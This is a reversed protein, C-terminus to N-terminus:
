EKSLIDMYQKAIVNDPDIALVEELKEIALANKSSKGYELAEQLLQSIEHNRKYNLFVKQRNEEKLLYVVEKYTVYNFKGGELRNLMLSANQEEDFIETKGQDHLISILSGSIEEGLIEGLNPSTIEMEVVITNEVSSEREISIKSNEWYKKKLLKQAKTRGTFEELTILSKDESSLLSYANKFEGQQLSEYFTKVIDQSTKAYCATIMLFILIYSTLLIYINVRNERM